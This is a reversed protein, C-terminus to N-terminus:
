WIEPQQRGPNAPENRRRGFAATRTILRGFGACRHPIGSFGGARQHAQSGSGGFADNAGKTGSAAGVAQTLEGASAQTSGFDAVSRHLSRGLHHAAGSDLHRGANEHSRHHNKFTALFTLAQRMKLVNRRFKNALARL